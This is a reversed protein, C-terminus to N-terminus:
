SEYDWAGHSGGEKETEEKRLDVEVRRGERRGLQRLGGAAALRQGRIRVLERDLLLQLQDRLGLVAAVRRRRRLCLLHHTQPPIHPDAYPQTKEPDSPANTM